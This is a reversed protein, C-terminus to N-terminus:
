NAKRLGSKLILAAADHITVGVVDRSEQGRYVTVESNSFEAFYCKDRNSLSIEIRDYDKNYYVQPKMTQTKRTECNNLDIGL